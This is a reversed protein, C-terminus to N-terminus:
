PPNLKARVSEADPHELEEFVALAQRWSAQAQGPDTAAACADGRHTWVTAESYRDGGQRLMDLSRDYCRIAEAYDGLQHSAYGLSDWTFAEGMPDGIAEFVAL